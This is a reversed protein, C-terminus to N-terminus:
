QGRGTTGLQTMSQVSMKESGRALWQQAFVNRQMDSLGSAKAMMAAVGRIRYQQARADDAVAMVEALYLNNYVDSYNDPVPAWSFNTAFATQGTVLTGAANALVLKTTTSSVVTFSGNNPSGSVFGTINATANVPFSIPDFTGTYTTNGAVALASATVQYAGFAPTRKQYVVNATYNKDPLGLFRLVFFPTADSFATGSDSTPGSNSHTFAATFTTPTLATVTLVQGNLYTATALGSITVLANVNLNTTSGVTVTVVNAAVTVSSIVGTYQVSTFTSSVSMANPRSGGSPATANASLAGNNYIDKLQFVENQDNTLSVNEVFFLDTSPITYDQVGQTVNFTLTNRNWYQTLIPNTMSNKIMSGISVAPEQGQFATQPVGLVYPSAFNISNQLTFM